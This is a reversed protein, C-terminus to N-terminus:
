PSGGAPADLVFMEFSRTPEFTIQSHYGIVKRGTIQEIAGTTTDGMTGQFLLRYSRVDAERGADLLTEEHRLLGGELVCFVYEDNLYTRAKEPGKGYYRKKLGVMANSIAARMSGPSELDVGESFDPETLAEPPAKSPHELGNTADTV